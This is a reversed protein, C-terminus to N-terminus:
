RAPRRLSGPLRFLLWLGAVRLIGRMLRGPRIGIASM